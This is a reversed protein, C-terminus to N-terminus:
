LALQQGPRILDPDEGVTARNDAYLATWGGDVGHEAAILSLSDGPRVTHSGSRGEGERHRDSDRSPRGSGDDGRHKGTGPSPDAEPASPSPAPEDPREATDDPVDPSPPPETGPVPLEEDPLGDIGGSDDSGETGDADGSGDDPAEPLGAEAGCAWAEPGEAALIKEAVAIQGGRSALDAREAYETGGYQEWADLTLQLGGYYGNHQNASWLGGSECEAVKDWVTAEVASASQAGLLPLAIGAGTMGAAVLAAPAQRPRRHRGTGSRM